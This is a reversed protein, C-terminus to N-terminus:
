IGEEKLKEILEKTKRNIKKPMEVKISLIIDGRGGGYPVGKNRVRLMEGNNIGEPIKIELDKGELTKLKYETGLIADSLKISIEALLNVGERRYFNHGKVKVKIYLDGFRGGSVAEGQGSLKIIQNNEIGSPIQMDIDENRKYVGLGKCKLCKEEPTKGLGNCDDCTKTTQFSGLISRRIEKIKGNGQCNKCINMKTNKKAGTGNCDDCASTRNLSIKKNVGFISDEFSLEINVEIDRGKKTRYNKNAGGSFFDGFIDSLDGMDFDMGNAGSFDFGGFGGFGGQGGGNSFGGMDANGFQDYNSRKKDDSLVQYAENVEKFKKDDGGNKDPHYTHALKHFAKKIEEKSANKEVGLIKYYDKSMKYQNIAEFM